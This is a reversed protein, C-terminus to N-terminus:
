PKPSLPRPAYTEHPQQPKPPVIQDTLKLSGRRRFPHSPLETQEKHEIPKSNFMNVIRLGTFSTKFHHPHVLAVTLPLM